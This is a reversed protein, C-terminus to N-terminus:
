KYDFYLEYIILNYVYEMFCVLQEVDFIQPKVEFNFGYIKNFEELSLCTGRFPYDLFHNSVIEAISKNDRNDKGYYLEYLKNYENEIDVKGEKLVQAYNRRMTLVM